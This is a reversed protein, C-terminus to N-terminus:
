KLSQYLYKGYFHKFFCLTCRLWSEWSTPETVPNETIMLSKESRNSAPPNKDLQTVTMKWPLTRNWTTLQRQKRCSLSTIDYPSLILIAPTQLIQYTLQLSLPSLLLHSHTHHHLFECKTSENLGSRFAVDTDPM